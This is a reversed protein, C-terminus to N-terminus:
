LVFFIEFTSMRNFNSDVLLVFHDEGLVWLMGVQQRSSPLAALVLQKQRDSGPISSSDGVHSDFARGSLSRLPKKLLHSKFTTM